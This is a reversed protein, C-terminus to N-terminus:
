LNKVKQFMEVRIFFCDLEISFMPKEIKVLCSIKLFAAIINIRLKSSSGSILVENGKQVRLTSHSAQNGLVVIM